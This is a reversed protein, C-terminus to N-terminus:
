QTVMDFHANSQLISQMQEYFYQNDKNATRLCQNIGAKFIQTYIEIKSQLKQICLLQINCLRNAKFIKALTNSYQIQQTSPRNYNIDYYDDYFRHHEICEVSIIFNNRLDLHNLNALETLADIHIIKNDSLILQELKQLFQLSSIDVIQNQGLHLYTLKTNYMLISIDIINNQSLTLRQLQLLSKIFSINSLNTKTLNLEVLTHLSSVTQINQLPNHALSLNQICCLKDLAKIDSIKNDSLKLTTLNILYKLEEIDELQNNQLNLAQLQIMQQIGDLTQLQCQNVTLNLINTPVDQFNISFCKKVFLTKVKFAQVFKRSSIDQQQELKLMRLVVKTQYKEILQSENM